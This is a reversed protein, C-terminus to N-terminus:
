DKVHDDGDCVRGVQTFSQADNDDNNDIDYMM